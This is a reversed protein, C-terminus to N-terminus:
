RITQIILATSLTAITVKYFLDKRQKKRLIKKTHKIQNHYQQTTIGLLKIKIDKQQVTIDIETKYNVQLLELTKVKEELLKNREKLHEAYKIIRYIDNAQKSDFGYYKTDNLFFLTPTLQQSYSSYPIMM